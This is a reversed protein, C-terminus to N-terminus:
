ARFKELLEYPVSLRGTGTGLRIHPKNSGHFDSGGSVALGYEDALKRIYREDGPQYTSYLAEIGDLGCALCNTILERLRDDSMHYLVPHALVAKGNAHHILEIGEQPTIKERPVHCRCGDGIYKEFAESISKIYGHELLFRAVHARTLVADPFMERLGEESIAFGEENLKQYM